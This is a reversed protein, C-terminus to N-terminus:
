STETFVMMFCLCLKEDNVHKEVYDFENVFPNILTYKSVEHTTARYWVAPCLNQNLETYIKVLKQKQKQLFPGNIRPEEPIPLLM